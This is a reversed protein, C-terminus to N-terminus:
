QWAPAGKHHGNPLGVAALPLTRSSRSTLLSAACGRRGVGVGGVCLAERGGRGWVGPAASGEGASGERSCERGSRGRRRSTRSCTCSATPGTRRCGCRGPSRAPRSPLPPARMRRSCFSSNCAPAPRLTTNPPPSLRPWRSAPPRAISPPPELRRWAQVTTTSRDIVCPRAMCLGTAADVRQHIFVVAWKCRAGYWPLLAGRQRERKGAVWGAPEVGVAGFGVRACGVRLRCM